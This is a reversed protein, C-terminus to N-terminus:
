SQFGILSNQLIAIIKHRDNNALAIDHLEKAFSKIRYLRNPVFIRIWKFEAIEISGNPKSESANGWKVHLFDHFINTSNDIRMELELTQNDTTKKKEKM